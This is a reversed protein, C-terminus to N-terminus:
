CRSHDRGISSSRGVMIYLSSGCITCRIGFLLICLATVTDLLLPIWPTGVIAVIPYNYGVLPCSSITSLLM